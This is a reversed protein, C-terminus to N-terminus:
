LDVEPHNKEIIEMVKYCEKWTSNGDIMNSFANLLEWTAGVFPDKQNEIEDLWRCALRMAESAEEFKQATNVTESGKANIGM